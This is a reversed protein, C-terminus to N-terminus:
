PSRARKAPQTLAIVALPPALGLLAGLASGLLASGLLAPGSLAGLTAGMAAAAVTGGLLSPAMGLLGAARDMARDM